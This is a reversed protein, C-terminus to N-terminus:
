LYESFLTNFSEKVEPPGISDLNAQFRKLKNILDMQKSYAHVREVPVDTREILFRAAAVRNDHNKKWHTVERQLSRCNPCDFGSTTMGSITM